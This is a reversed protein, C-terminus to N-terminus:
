SHGENKRIERALAALASLGCAVAMEELTTAAPVLYGVFQRHGLQSLRGFAGLAQVLRQVAAWAFSAQVAAGQAPCLVAYRALLRTRVAPALSVYPDCLLSALDYAAAGLRMGQFDILAVRGRRCLVNSSQFDRHVVVPPAGALMRAARTLEEAVGAPFGDMGYRKVLLQNRFLDHEWHYLADDFAPEMALGSRFVADTAVTHLRAAAALVPEYLAEANAGRRQMLRTLDTNGWDELALVRAEPWDLLVRPVPVGVTSLLHAHGAYRGNEPRELSYRVLMARQTGYGARWFSRNSGREGLFSLATEALPWGLRQLTETLAPDPAAAAPILATDHWAGAVVAGGAVVVDQLRARPAVLAGDWIVSRRARLPTAPTTMASTPPALSLFGGAKTGGQADRAPEYLEGGVQGCRARRRVEAHMRLYSPVTGADEWYSRPARVGAVSWGAAAATEYLDVLSCVPQSPMFDFLRPSVLQLGCFTATGPTGPHGSRYTTIRQNRATEVTRPGKRPELWAAAVHRDHAQLAAQFPAPAVSAVIDANVIWFPAEQLASRMARLAGGTGLIEQEPFLQFRAPGVHAELCARIQESRWHLNVLIERVGWRELMTVLRIILPQGWLPVLPKPQVWTLPRLRTGLGAALIVAKQPLDNLPLDNM